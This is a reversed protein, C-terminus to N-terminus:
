VVSAWRSDPMMKCKADKSTEFIQGVCSNNVLADSSTKNAPADLCKKAFNRREIDGCVRWLECGTADIEHCDLPSRYTGDKARCLIRQMTDVHEAVHPVIDNSPVITVVDQTIEQRQVGFTHMLYFQGPASFGIAPIRKRAGVLEAFNGGLSHGTIV